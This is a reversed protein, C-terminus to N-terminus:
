ALVGSRAAIQAVSVAAERGSAAAVGGDDAGVGGVADVPIVVGLGSVTCAPRRAM